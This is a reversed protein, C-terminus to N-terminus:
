IKLNKLCFAILAIRKVSFQETSDNLKSNRGLASWFQLGKLVEIENCCNFRFYVIM